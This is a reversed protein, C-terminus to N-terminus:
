EHPVLQEREGYFETWFFPCDDGGVILTENATRLVLDPHGDVRRSIPKMTFGDLKGGVFVNVTLGWGFETPFVDVCAVGGSEVYKALFSPDSARIALSAVDLGAGFVLYLLEGVTECRMLHLGCLHQSLRTSLSLAAGDAVAANIENTTM